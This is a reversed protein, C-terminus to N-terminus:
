ARGRKRDKLLWAVVLPVVGGVAGAAVAGVASAIGYGLTPELAQVVGRATPLAFGISLGITFPFRWDKAPAKAQPADAM